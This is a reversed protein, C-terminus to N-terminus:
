DDLKEDDSAAASEECESDLITNCMDQITGWRTPVARALSRVGDVKQAERLQAKVVHHNHFFKVVDKCYEVFELLDKFLYDIPYSPESDGPKKTKRAAFIDKVLLHM